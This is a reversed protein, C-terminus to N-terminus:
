HVSIPNLGLMLREAAVKLCFHQAFFFLFTWESTKIISAQTRGMRLEDTNECQVDLHIISQVAVRDLQHSTETKPKTKPQKKHNVVPLHWFNVSDADDCLSLTVNMAFLLQQSCHSSTICLMYEAFIHHQSIMKLIYSLFYTFSETSLVAVVDSHLNFSVGWISVLRTLCGQRYHGHFSGGGMCHLLHFVFEESRRRNFFASSSQLSRSAEAAESYWISRPDWLTETVTVQSWGLPVVYNPPLLRKKEM